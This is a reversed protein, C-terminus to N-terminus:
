TVYFSNARGCSSNIINEFFNDGESEDLLQMQGTPEADSDWDRGVFRQNSFGDGEVGSIARGNIGGWALGLSFISCHGNVFRVM